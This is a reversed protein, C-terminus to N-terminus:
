RILTISGTTQRKEGNAYEVDIVYVYTGEPAPEGNHTGDWGPATSEQNPNFYVQSGWRNFIRVETVVAGFSWFRFDDNNGDGNPTFINPLAVRFDDNVLVTVTTTVSCGNTDTATVTYVTTQEPNAIPSLCNTCSLGTTPTWAITQLPTDSPDLIAVLTDEEGRTIEIDIYELTFIDGDLVNTASTSTICGEADRVSIVYTGPALNRFVSDVQYAAGNLSYTYPGVGGNVSVTIMANSGGACTVSGTINANVVLAPAETVTATITESCGNADTVTVTYVGGPLENIDETTANTNWLFTYPPTGGNVTVDVKGDNSGNCTVNDISAVNLFMPPTQGVVINATATCGNADEVTVTYNGGAINQHDQTAPLGNSWTYTYAGSGGTVDIDIAGNSVNFCSANTVSVVTILLEGPETIVITTDKQCGNSDQVRVLYSGAPLNTFSGSSGLTGGNLSYQFPPNGTNGTATIEGTSDGFCLVDTHTATIGISSTNGVTFTFNEECLNADRVSFNYTGAALNGFTSDTTFLGGQAAYRYPPTGGTANIVIQGNNIGQCTAPTVTATASIVAPDIITIDTSDICGNFDKVWFRYTGGPLFSFAANNVYTVADDSFTYPPTGGAASVVAVGDSLGNCSVDIRFLQGADLLTPQAVFVFVQTACGNADEVDITYNGTALGTFTNSSQFAGGNISYQYPTTGGSPTVEVTGTATGFCLAGTNNSIQAALVAPQTIAFTTDVQCGLVDQVRLVYTGISLNSFTGSPVFSGGNLSFTYPANGNTPTSTFSGDSLGNCSINTIAVNSLITAPPNTLTITTVTDICNNFDKVLVIYTGAPLNNITSGGQYTNGNDASYTFPPTGGSASVTISGNSGGNCIPNSGIASATIAPATGVVVTKVNTCGNADAVTVSYTGATLGTQTATAPLTGPGWTYTYPAIGQTITVTATGNNGGFCSTPTSTLTYNLLLGPTEVVTLTFTGQAGATAGDVVITYNGPTCITTTIQSQAGCSNDNSAHIVNCNADLLYLYTDFSASPNCLSITVGTPQSVNITYFVDNGPSNPWNNGYCQNSNFHIINTTAGILNGLNIANNCATGRTYRWYTQIRPRYVDNACAGPTMQVYGHDFTQCPPGNRYNMQTRFPNANCPFDDSQSVGLCAGLVVAGCCYNNSYTCRSGGCIGSDDTGDHEWAHLRLDFFQPAAAGTFAQNFLVTNFDNSNTGSASPNFNTTLCNGGQWGLGNIDSNARAWVYYTLEDPSTLGILQDSADFYTRVERLRVELQIPGDNIIQAVVPQAISILTFATLLSCFLNTFRKM